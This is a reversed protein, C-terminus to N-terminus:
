AISDNRVDLVCYNTSNSTPNKFFIVNLNDKLNITQVMNNTWFQPHISKFYKVIRNFSSHANFNNVPVFLSVWNTRGYSNLNTALFDNRDIYYQGDCKYVVV